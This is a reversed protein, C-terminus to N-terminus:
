WNTAPPFCRWGCGADCSWRRAAVSSALGLQPAFLREGAAIVQQGLAIDSGRPPDVPRRPRGRQRHDRRRRRASHSGADRIADAGAAGTRRHLHAGGHRKLATGVQGAPIRQSVPLTTPVAALDAVRVAYGDMQSADLPPVAITSHLPEALVRGLAQLTPLTETGSIPQAQTLLRARAEEVTLM